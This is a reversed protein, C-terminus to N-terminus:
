FTIDKYKEADNTKPQIDLGVSKNSYGKVINRAHYGNEAPKLRVDIVLIKEMFFFEDINNLNANEDIALAFKKLNQHGINVATKNPNSLTINDFFLRGVHDGNMVEFKVSLYEGTGAKNRKVDCGKVQVFYQGNPLPSFDNVEVENLNHTYQNLM